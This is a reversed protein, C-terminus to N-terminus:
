RFVASRFNKLCIISTNGYPINTDKGIFHYVINTKDQFDVVARLVTACDGEM